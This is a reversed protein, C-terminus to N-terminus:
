CHYDVTVSVWDNNPTIKEAWQPSFKKIEAVCLERSESISGNWGTEVYNCGNWIQRSIMYVPDNKYAYIVRYASLNSPMESVKCIDGAPKEGSWRGGIVYWDWFREGSTGDGDERFPEMIEAVSKEVDEPEPMIIELYYHM